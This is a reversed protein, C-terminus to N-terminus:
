RLVYIGVSQLCFSSLLQVLANIQWNSYDIGRLLEISPARKSLIDRDIKVFPVLNTAVAAEM